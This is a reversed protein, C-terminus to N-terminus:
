NEKVLDHLQEELDVIREEQQLTKDTLTEVMEEAALAADVQEKLEVITTEAQNNFLPQLMQEYFQLFFLMTANFCMVHVKCV